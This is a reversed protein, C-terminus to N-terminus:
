CRVASGGSASGQPRLRRRCRPAAPHGTPSLGHPLQPGQQRLPHADAQGQGARARQRLVAPAPSETPTQKLFEVRLPVTCLLHIRSVGKNPKSHTALVKHLPPVLLHRNSTQLIQILAHDSKIFPLGICLIPIHSTRRCCNSDDKAATGLHLSASFSEANRPTFSQFTTYNCCQLLFTWRIHLMCPASQTNGYASKTILSADASSRHPIPLRYMCVQNAFEQITYGRHLLVGHERYQSFIQVALMSNTQM